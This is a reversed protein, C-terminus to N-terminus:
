TSAAPVARDDSPQVGVEGRDVAADGISVERSRARHRGFLTAVRDGGRPLRLLIRSPHHGASLRARNAVV